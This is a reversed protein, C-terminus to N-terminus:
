EFHSDGFFVFLRKVDTPAVNRQMTQRVMYTSRGPRDFWSNGTYTYTSGCCTTVFYGTSWTILYFNDMRLRRTQERTREVAKRRVANVGDAFAATCFRMTLATLPPLRTASDPVM